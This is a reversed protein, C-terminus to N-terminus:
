IVSIQYLGYSIENEKQSDSEKSENLYNYLPKVRETAIFVGKESEIGDIFMLINPHRLMKM